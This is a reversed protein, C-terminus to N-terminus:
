RDRGRRVEVVSQLAELLIESFQRGYEPAEDQGECFFFCPPDEDRAPLAFWATMYGQHCFFPLIPGDVAIENDELLEAVWERNQLLDRALWGSGRLPGYKDEGMWLLFERYASPFGHGFAAELTHVRSTTCGRPEGFHPRLERDYLARVNDLLTTM